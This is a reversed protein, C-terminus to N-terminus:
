PRVTKEQISHHLGLMLSFHDAKEGSKATLSYSYRTDLVFSWNRKVEFFGSVALDLGYETVDRASTNIMSGDTFTSHVVQVDGVAYGSAFSASLALAPNLWHRYGMTIHALDTQEALFQGRQEILYLKNFYFLGIELSGTGSVDGLVVLGLGTKNAAQLGSVTTNFNTRTMLPGAYLSVNGEQADYAKAPLRIFTTLVLIILGIFSM